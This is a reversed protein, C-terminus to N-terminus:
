ALKRNWKAIQARISQPSVSGQTKKKQTSVEPSFIEYIAPGAQPAIKKIKEIPLQSLGVESELALRVINGAARHADSFAMGLAVLYDLLDTAYLFSDASARASVEQNMKATAVSERIVDLTLACMKISAFLAEKDEQLDRNYALPLGKQATLVAMLYGFARASRGRALEFMDPNKKQPMLSSGTAYKEDLELFGFETTSWLIMDESLRSVHTMLIALCSLTESVYDRSSTADMSNEMIGSFGLKKALFARSVPYASGGIAGSGLPLVDLRKLADRLREKDRELMETYALFPQAASIVQARQLHTYGPLMVSQNKEAFRVLAKQFEAIKESLIPLQKKLYLRTATTVQDNRSRGTHLKKAVPGALKELEAQILSHVDEYASCLRNFAEGRKHPDLFKQFKKRVADLGKVLKSAEQARLIHAGSLAQAWAKSLEIDAEFLDFDTALSYSFCKAQAALESKFRGGWLKKM